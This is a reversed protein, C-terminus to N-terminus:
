KNRPAISVPIGTESAIAMAAPYAYGKRQAKQGAIVRQGDYREDSSEVELVSGAKKVDFYLPNAEGWSPDASAKREWAEQAQIFGSHMLEEAEKRKEVADAFDDFTGLHYRRGKFGISM